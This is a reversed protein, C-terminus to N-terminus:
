GNMKVRFTTGRNTDIRTHITQLKNDYQIGCKAAQVDNKVIDSFLRQLVGWRMAERYKDTFPVALTSSTITAHPDSAYSKKYVYSTKDPVPGVYIKEGFVAYCKPRGRASSDTVNSLYRRDWESKSIRDLDWGDNGDQVVIPGVLWGLDSEVDMAYEGLTGIQDTLDVQTEDEPFQIRLRMDNITDTIADYVETSKDTRKFARIIYSYFDSGSMFGAEAEDAVEIASGDWDLSQAGAFLDSEAPSGGLQIYYTIEYRGATTIAVPFDGTHVKSSGEETMTRPYNAYNVSSYSEFTTGNWVSSTPNWLIGYITLGTQQTGVRLEKSM